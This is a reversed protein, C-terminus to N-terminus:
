GVKRFVPVKLGGLEEISAEVKMGISVAEPAIGVVRAMM